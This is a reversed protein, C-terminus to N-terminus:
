DGQVVAALVAKIAEETDDTVTEPDVEWMEALYGGIMYVDAETFILSETEAPDDAAM